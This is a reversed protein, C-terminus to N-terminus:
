LDKTVTKRTVEVRVPENHPSMNYYRYNKWLSGSTGLGKWWGGPHETINLDSSL